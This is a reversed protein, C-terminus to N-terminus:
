EAPPGAFAARASHQEEIQMIAPVLPAVAGMLMSVAGGVVFWAGVGLADSVPGAVALGLPAALQSMSGVIMFVRGQMDLAIANQLIAFLPGNTIPNMIGALLLAAVAWWLGTTPALGVLLFGIGMGVVGALSTAIRKRFGGWASLVIGGVIMGVGWASNMWGLQLAEGRFHRTVLLPLLSMGPYIFFNLLVGMALLMVMGPWHWIYGIGERVDRWLTPKADQADRTAARRPPQPIHVFLLPVIAFGASIVDILMIWYLPLITMLFAGLPPTVISMVGQLTQNMGAVRTLQKEPVM